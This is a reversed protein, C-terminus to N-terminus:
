QVAARGGLGPQQRGFLRRAARPLGAVGPMLTCLLAVSASAPWDAYYSLYIGGLGCAVGLAAALAVSIGLGRNLTLAGLAPGTVLALALLSGAVNAAVAVACVLVALLAAEVRGPRVGIAAAAGRDFALASFRPHLLWLALGLGGALALSLLVDRMGAALPDGFLLAEFRASGHGGSALLAGAAVLLTVAVSTATAPSTRPARAILLLAVYALLVGALAGSVLSAGALSALVLGPLVAHTLSEAQFARGFQVVWVGVAGCGGGVMALEAATAAGFDGSLPEILTALPM